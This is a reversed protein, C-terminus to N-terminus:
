DAHPRRAVQEYLQYARRDQDTLPPPFLSRPWLRWAYVASAEAAYLTIQAQLYLWALLGLVIGFVGYLASSHRLMRAVVYGGLLQLVQWAIASLLAGLRLDRWSVESATALRFALWFLAINAALSLAIAGVHGAMGSILHGVAIGSLSVTIIEGVGVALILGLGRLASWPFAPRRGLPVAWVTNLANQAAGAVGLGGLLSGILGILLAIGTNHPARVSNELQPGIVPYARLASNLVRQRLAPDHSVTIDLLTILVLLLPFIATFTYYALLAALNGAQDDGFKKWVALGYALWPRRQQM